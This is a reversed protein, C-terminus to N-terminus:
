PGPAIPHTFGEFSNVTSISIAHPLCRIMSTYRLTTSHPWANVCGFGGGASNECAPRCRVSRRRPLGGSCHKGVREVTV